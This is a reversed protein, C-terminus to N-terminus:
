KQVSELGVTAGEITTHLLYLKIASSLREYFVLENGFPEILQRIKTMRYRITNPHCYHIVAVEKVNGKRLVFTVATNLLERDVREELLPGLYMKIYNNAFQADKRYLEILMRESALQEYHCISQMEMEAIIRAYYAERVALHLETHTLHAESYGIMLTDTPIAYFTMWENLMKEFQLKQYKNTFFILISQKYTCIIGSTLFSEFQFFDYMWQSDEYQKMKINAAFVYKEFPKNMQQLFSQMQKESIEEEILCRMMKELFLKNDRKKIHNMVEFIIDEFFEDGGFRLIPFGQENAFDLVENPLDEFIVPKYALASVKLEILKKITDILQEPKEKAFLLSSLVLSYSSFATERVQQIGAAFEFDLIEVTQIINNLANGGAVVSFDQTVSLQLLDKVNM